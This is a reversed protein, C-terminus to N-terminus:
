HRKKSASYPWSQNPYDPSNRGGRTPIGRIPTKGGKEQDKNKVGVRFGRSPKNRPIDFTTGCFRRKKWGGKCVSARLNEKQFKYRCICMGDGKGSTKLKEKEGLKQMHGLRRQIPNV